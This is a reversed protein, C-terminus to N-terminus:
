PYIFVKFTIQIKRSWARKYKRKWKVGTGTKTQSKTATKTQNVGHNSTFRLTLNRSVWSYRFSILEPGRGIYRSGPNGVYCIAIHSWCFILSWEFPQCCCWNLLKPILASNPLNASLDTRKHRETLCRLFQTHGGGQGTTSTLNFYHNFYETVSLISQSCKSLNQKGERLTLKEWPAVPFWLLWSAGSAKGFHRGPWSPREYLVSFDPAVICQM